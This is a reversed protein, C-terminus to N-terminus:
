FTHGLVSCAKFIEQATHRTKHKPFLLAPNPHMGAWGVTGASGSVWRRRAGSVIAVPDNSRTAALSFKKVHTNTELAKAFDKLTPIPINQPM